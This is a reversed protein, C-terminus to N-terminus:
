ISNSKVSVAMESSERIILEPSYIIHSIEKDSKDIRLLLNECAIHGMEYMPQAVTSLGIYESITLNDYSILPIRIGTEQMAKFAGISKTDSASFCADPIKDGTLLKKMAHYGEKETFGDRYSVDGTIVLDKNFPLGAEKLAKKYGEIRHMIPKSSELASLMAINRYGKEILYRTAKFAGKKNDVSVSDFAHHYDDIIVISTDYRKIKEWKKDSFHISIFIYGEAVRRKLLHEVQKFLNEEPKINIINLEYDEDTLKDQIGALVEMFYYNSIVPVVVAITNKKKSALGQAFAQPHYGMEDAIKLVKERTKSKVRGTDNIVRSVTAISVDAAEAIDYITKGL